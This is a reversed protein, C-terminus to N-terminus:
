AAKFCLPFANASSLYVLIFFTLHSDLESQVTMKITRLNLNRGFDSLFSLQM